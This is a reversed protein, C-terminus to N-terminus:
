KADDEKAKANLRLFSFLRPQSPEFLDQLVDSLAKADLHRTLRGGKAMSIIGTEESVILAVADTTESIGLAARHRTGLEHSIGHGETLTLICAGAMVRSGRIVVAGDHLPTNPEFINELLASSIQADITIGTEIVDQLGTKGEIVILAGVRRRSLSTMCRVIEDVLRDHDGAGRTKDLKAGRGIQELAKRLEPQFLIVLVLAGNNIISMLLWNLATLGLIDSIGVMVLLLVLGKLVASGRTQRTLMILEYIIVAVVLIDFIDSIGPRHFVNWIITQITEWLSTVHYAVGSEYM